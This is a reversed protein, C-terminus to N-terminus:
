SFTVTIDEAVHSLPARVRSRGGTGVVPFLYTYQMFCKSGAVVHVIQLLNAVVVM